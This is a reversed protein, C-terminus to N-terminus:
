FTLQYVQHIAPTGAVRRLTEASLPHSIGIVALAQSGSTVGVQMRSINVDERGLLTGLAGVVGPRDEHRTILVTGEPVSEVECDDIRVLRAHREGLL